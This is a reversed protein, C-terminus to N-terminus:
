KKSLFDKYNINPNFKDLNINKYYNTEKNKDTFDLGNLQKNEVTINREFPKYYVQEKENKNLYSMRDVNKGLRHQVIYPNFQMDHIKKNKKNESTINITTKYITEENKVNNDLYLPKQKQFVDRDMYFTNNNIIPKKKNKEENKSNLNFFDRDLLYNNKDM